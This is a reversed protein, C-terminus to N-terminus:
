KIHQDSSGDLAAALRNAFGPDIRYGSSQAQRSHEQALSYEGTEYYAVSLNAHAVAHGPFIELAKRYSQIAEQYNGENAYVAGMNVYAEALYPNTEISQKYARVADHPRGSAMYLNGLNFYAEALGPNLETAKQYAAAAEAHKGAQAYTVGLNNYILADYPTIALAKKFSAVADEIRGEQRYLDGMRALVRPNEPSAKFTARWFSKEDQWDNNRVITRSALAVVAALFFFLFIRASLATRLAYREYAFAFCISFLLSPLYLYREAVLCCIALPSFTPLLFLIFLVLGAFLPKAKRFLLPMFAVLAIFLAVEIALAAQSARATEHYLSLNAPWFVVSLNSFFSHAATLLPDNWAPLNGTPEALSDIRYLLPMRVFSLKLCTLAVYPLWFKWCRRARGLSVDVLIIFAPFLLYYGFSNLALYAFLVLSFLYVGARLRRQKTAAHYVLFNLLFFLSIFLYPRGSIWAVAETHVPHLAFVLAGLFSPIKSFLLRLVFFVLVSNVAHLLVNTLHYVFADKGALLFNLSVSLMSPDRWFRAPHVLLPNRIIAPIDDSIFGNDLTNLYVL